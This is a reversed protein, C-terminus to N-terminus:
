PFSSFLLFDSLMSRVYCTVDWCNISMAVNWVSIHTFVAIELITDCYSIESYTPRMATTHPFQTRATSSTSQIQVVTVYRLGVNTWQKYQWTIRLRNNSHLHLYVRLCRRWLVIPLVISSQAIYTWISRANLPRYSHTNNFSSALLVILRTTTTKVALKLLYCVCVCSMLVTWRTM